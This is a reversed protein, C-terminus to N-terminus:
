LTFLSYNNIDTEKWTNLFIIGRPYTVSMLTRFEIFFQKNPSLDNIAPALLARCQQFNYATFNILILAEM